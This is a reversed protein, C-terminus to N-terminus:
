WERRRVVDFLARKRENWFRKNFSERLRDAMTRYRKAAETDQRESEM